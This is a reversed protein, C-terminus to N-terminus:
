LLKEYQELLNTFIGVADSVPKPSSMDVGALKLSEIPFNSGGSKLFNLYTNRDSEDGEIVKKSLALSASLGTAYKYVYFARYFHPIRLGELDSVEDLVMEPGFYAELLKRYATRLSDVTLPIGSEYMQHTKHEFEAFMTQRFITAIIDDLQKGIIYAKMEKSEAHELLYKAVFQENFTSAVEAEFITYNYHQFPNNKVSYWSHMSHGGEHALTFVDRLVTDKYNMLIYPDGIYSGASFAGSRKGKNEYRDVWSGLLGDKLISTYEEGMPELAKIVIDVAKTYSYKTSVNKVLPVYVDYHRLTDVGLAKKRLAYYKHLAPFGDHVASVLNDYVAEPVDDPFLAAARASSYNRVRAQYADYQVNGAYLAAITNQHENFRSYFQNYAKERIARDPNILFSSISGQSLPKEGEPTEITGFTLDVDTLAEFAKQPASAAEAQLALLREESASLVHPKFRLIKKLMISYEGIRSDLLYSTIVDEPIAQIEPDIYSIAASFETEAQMVLGYRSQNSSDGADEAYRLFAYHGIREGLLGTTSLFDLCSLFIDASEALKGKYADAKPIASKFIELDKEWEEHTPYLKSLDWCDATSVESRVPITNNEKAM